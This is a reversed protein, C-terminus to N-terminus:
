DISLPMEVVYLDAYTPVTAGATGVLNFRANNETVEVFFQANTTTTNASSTNNQDALTNNSLLNVLDCNYTTMVPNAPVGTTGWLATYVIMYVGTAIGQPFYYSSAASPGIEGTPNLNADLVPIMGGRPQNAVPVIGGSLVGGLNSEVTPFKLGTTVTGFPTLPLVGTGPVAVSHIQFHDAAPGDALPQGVESKPKSFEIVYRIKMEGIASGVSQMGITALQFLGVDYLRKDAGNPVPGQRTYLEKVPLNNCNIKHVLNLSPKVSQSGEYNEMQSKNSFAANYVNYDTAAIVTGIGPAAASGALDTSTTKYLVEISIPRWHEFNDAIKNLWPFLAQNGPNIAFGPVLENSPQVNIFAKSSSVDQVFEEHAIRIGNTGTSFRPKGRVANKVAAIGTRKSSGVSKYSRASKNTGTKKTASGYIRYKTGDKRVGYHYGVVRSTSKPM